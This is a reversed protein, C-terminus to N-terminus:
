LTCDFVRRCFNQLSFNVFGKVNFQISNSKSVYGLRDRTSIIIYSIKYYYIQLVYLIDLCISCCSFRFQKDKLFINLVFCKSWFFNEFLDDTIFKSEMTFKRSLYYSWVCQNDQGELAFTISSELDQCQIYKKM